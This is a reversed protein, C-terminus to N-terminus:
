VDAIYVKHVKDVGVVKGNYGDIWTLSGTTLQTWNPNTTLDKAAVFIFDDRVGYLRTGDYSIEQLNGPIKKWNPEGRSSGTWIEDKSNVGFLIGGYVDVHKLNGDIHRWNPATTMHEDAVFVDGAKNVGALQAGDYSILNSV